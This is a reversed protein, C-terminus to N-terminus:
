RRRRSQRSAANRPKRKARAASEKVSNITEEIRRV